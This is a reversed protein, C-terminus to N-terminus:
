NKYVDHYIEVYERLEEVVKNYVLNNVKDEQPVQKELARLVISVIEVIQAYCFCIGITGDNIFNPIEEEVIGNIINDIIIDQAGGNKLENIISLIKNLQETRKM